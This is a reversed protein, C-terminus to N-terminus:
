ATKDVYLGTGPEPPTKRVSADVMDIAAKEMDFQKKLVALSASFQTKALGMTILSSALDATEM